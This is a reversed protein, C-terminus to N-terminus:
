EKCVKHTIEIIFKGEERKVNSILNRQELFIDMWPFVHSCVITLKQFLTNYFFPILAKKSSIEPRYKQLKIFDLFYEGESNVATPEIPIVAKEEKVQGDNKEDLQLLVYDQYLQELLEESFTEAECVDIGNQNFFYFPIGTIVSGVLVKCKGLSNFLQALGNRFLSLNSTDLTLNEITKVVKFGEKKDYIKICDLNYFDTLRGEKNFLIGIM